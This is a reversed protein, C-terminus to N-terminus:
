TLGAGHVDKIFYKCTGTSVFGLDLRISFVRPFLAGVGLFSLMEIVSLLGDSRGPVKFADYWMFCIMAIAFPGNIMDLICNINSGKREM